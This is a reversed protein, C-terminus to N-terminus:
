KHQKQQKKSEWWDRFRSVPIPDRGYHQQQDRRKTGPRDVPEPQKPKPKGKPTNAVAQEWRMMNVTDILDALLM